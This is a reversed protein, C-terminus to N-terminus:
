VSSLTSDEILVGHNRLEAPVRRRNVPLVLTKAHPARARQLTRSPQRTWSPVPVGKQHLRYTVVAAIAADWSKNGTLEPESLALAFGIEPPEAVLNDSLQILVRLAEDERDRELCERLETALEVVNSRTTPIAILSHGCARLARQVSSLVPDRLGKELTSLSSPALGSRECVVAQSLGRARRASRVLTNTSM